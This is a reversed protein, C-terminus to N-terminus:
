CTRGPNKFTILNAKSIPFGCGWKKDGTGEFLAREGTALLAKACVQNRRFKELLIERMIQESMDEWEKTTTIGRGALKAKFAKRESKILLAEREYGCSRARTFQFAAESSLFIEGRYIINCPYLNSLPSHQSQFVVAKDDLIYLTKARALSIDGPLKSLDQYRFSRGDIILNGAKVRANYGKTKAYASLARIDRQENSQTETLDDNFYVSKWEEKGHLNKLNRFIAAKETVSSFIVVLPRPRRDGIEPRNNVNGRGEGPRAGNDSLPKGRRFIATCVNTTFEVKPDNFVKKLVETTREGERELLGDIVLINRRREREIQEIKDELENLRTGHVKLQASVGTNDENLKEFKTHAQSNSEEIKTIRDTLQKATYEQSQISADIKAELSEKVNDLRDLVKQVDGGLGPKANRGVSSPQSMTALPSRPSKPTGSTIRSRTSMGRGLNPLEKGETTQKVM